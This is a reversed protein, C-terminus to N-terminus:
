SINKQHILTSNAIFAAKLEELTSSPPLALREAFFLYIKETNQKNKRWDKLSIAGASKSLKNGEADTVLPHHLFDVKQFSHWVPVRGALHVQAATSDYLDEGRVILNIGMRLDDILSTLQYAPLQNKGRVVFDKMTKQIDVTCIQNKQLDKFQVLSNEPPTYLRLATNPADLPIKKDFCTRHYQGHADAEKQTKKRSCRCAYLQTHTHLLTLASQYNPLFHIQAYEKEFEDPSQPGTDWDLGLWELSKFIDEVYKIRYRQRDLDDIRLHIKGGQVRALLWTLVFSFANGIHLYGSPTPAFRTLLTDPKTQM